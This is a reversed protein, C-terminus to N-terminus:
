FSIEHYFVLIRKVVFRMVSKLLALPNERQNMKPNRCHHTVQRLVVVIKHVRRHLWILLALSRLLHLLKSQLLQVQHRLIQLLPKVEPRYLWQHFWMPISYYPEEVMPILVYTRKEQLDVERLVKSGKIM